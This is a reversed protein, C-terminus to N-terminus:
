SISCLSSTGSSTAISSATSIALSYQPASAGPEDVADEARDHALPLAALHAAAQALDGLAQLRDGGLQLALSASSSRAASSAARPRRARRRPPRPPWGGCARAALAPSRRAPRSSGRPGARAPRRRARALQAEGRRGRGGAELLRHAVRQEGAALPHARDERQGGGAREAGLGLAEQRDGARDLQDVGVRQDVVVQRRHVVVLQAAAQRGRVDLEALVDRDEGAVAEEGLRHPEEALLRALRGPHQRRQALQRAAVPTSPMTPPWYTSTTPSGLAVGLAQAGQVRQLGAPQDGGADADHQGELSQGFRLCNGIAPEGVLQADEELDDVVDEVHGLAVLLEALWMSAVLSM